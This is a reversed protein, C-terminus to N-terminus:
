LRALEGFWRGGESWTSDVRLGAELAVAALGDLAVWAWPFWQGVRVGTELRVRQSGSLGGPPEVEVLLRGSATILESARALLKVPSGGIGINGDLLLAWRWRGACPVDGFVDRQVAAGGRQLTMSIAAPSIDIGLCPVGQAAVGTVFRGPGCGIDLTAGDLRDVVSRDVEDLPECWRAAPLRGVGGDERRLHVQLDHSQLAEGYMTVSM